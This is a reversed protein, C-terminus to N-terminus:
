VPAVILTPDSGRKEGARRLFRVSGAIKAPKIKLPCPIGVNGWGRRRSTGNVGSPSKWPKWPADNGRGLEPTQAMKALIGDKLWLQVNLEENKLVRSLHVNKWIRAYLRKKKLVARHDRETL